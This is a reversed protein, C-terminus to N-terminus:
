FYRKIIRALFTINNFIFFTALCILLHLNVYKVPKYLGIKNIRYMNMKLYGTQAAFCYNLFSLAIIIVYNIKM